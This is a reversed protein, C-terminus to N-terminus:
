WDEIPIKPEQSLGDQFKCSAHTGDCFPKNSSQGCRCLAIRNRIEYSEGNSSEIRIGGKVWIPGSVKIGPDEILSISPSFNPEYPKKTNNDWVLLRGGACHAAEHKVINIEDDTTAEEVINWIRGKADCFRMFACYKKNDTLSIRPGQFVESNTLIDEFPATETPDWDHHKHAGDCFPMHKSGGCRCLAMPDSTKFTIAGKRYVWPAGDNEVIIIEQDLPPNGYVMYPGDPTVKIYFKAPAPQSGKEIEEDILKTM